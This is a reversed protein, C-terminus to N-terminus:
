PSSLGQNGIDSIVLWQTHCALWVRHRDWARIFLSPFFDMWSPLGRHHRHCVEIKLDASTGEGKRRGQHDNSADPAHHGTACLGQGVWGNEKVELPPLGAMEPYGGETGMGCKGGDRGM